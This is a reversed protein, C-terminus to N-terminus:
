HPDEQVKLNIMKPSYPNLDPFLRVVLVHPIFSFFLLPLMLSRQMLPYYNGSCSLNLIDSIEKILNGTILIFFFFILILFSMRLFNLFLVSIAVHCKSDWKWFCLMLSHRRLSLALVSATICVNAIRGSQCFNLSKYMDSPPIAWKVDIIRHPSSGPMSDLRMRVCALIKTSILLHLSKWPQLVVVSRM